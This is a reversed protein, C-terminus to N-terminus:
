RRHFAPPQLATQWEPAQMDLALLQYMCHAVADGDGRRQHAIMATRVLGIWFPIPSTSGAQDLTPYQDSCEQADLIRGTAPDLFHRSRGGGAVRLLWADPAPAVALSLGAPAGVSAARTAIEPIVYCSLRRGVACYLAALSIHIGKHTELVNDLLLPKLGDYVWEYPQQKIDGEECIVKSLEALQQVAIDGDAPPPLKSGHSGGLFLGPSSGKRVRDALDDMSKRAGAQWEEPSKVSSDLFDLPDEDDLLVTQRLQLASEEIWLPTNGPKEFYREELLKWRGLALRSNEGSKLLLEIKAETQAADPAIRAAKSTGVGFGFAEPFANLLGITPLKNDSLKKLLLSALGSKAM